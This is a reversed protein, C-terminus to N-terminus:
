DTTSDNDSPETEDGLARSVSSLELRFDHIDDRPAIGQIYANTGPLAHVVQWRALISDVPQGAVDLWSFRYMASLKRSSDNFFEGAVRVLGGANLSRTFALQRLGKNRLTRDVSVHPKWWNPTAALADTSRAVVLANSATSGDRRSPSRTNSYGRHLVEPAPDSRAVLRRITPGGSAEGVAAVPPRAAAGPADTATAIAGGSGFPAVHVASPTGAGVTKVWVLAFPAAPLSIDSILSSDSSIRIRGDAPWPVSAVNISQPLARWMRTDAQTTAQAMVVSGVQLLAGFMGGQRQAVEQAAAQAVVKVVMSAIAKGIIKDYGVRFETAAYRDISLLSETRYTSGAAQVTLSGVGPTGTVFEPIAIGAYIPGRTTNVPLDVRFEELRPGIGDEHIIWVRPAVRGAASGASEEAVRFDEKVHSNREGDLVVANRLLDSARNPEGTALRFVGHLWDTFPNRLDKYEGLSRVAALRKGLESDPKTSQAYTQDIQQSKERRKAAEGPEEEDLARVKAALQHVANAQRQDARNLEVRARAEDRLDLANMAKYTNILVGDYINGHYSSILDNGVITLGQELFEGVNSIEDATWLLKAEARDWATQSAGFSGAARLASGVQLSTLLNEEDYKLGGEGGLAAAAGAYDGQTYPEQFSGVRNLDSVGACGTVLLLLVVLGGCCLASVRRALALSFSFMCLM